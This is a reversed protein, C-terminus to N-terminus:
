AIPRWRPGSTWAAGLAARDRPARRAIAHRRQAGLVVAGGTPGQRGTGPRPHGTEARADARRAALGGRPAAPAGRRHEHRRGFGRPDRRGASRDARRRGWPGVPARGAPRAGPRRAPRTPGTAAGSRRPATAVLGDPRAGGVPRGAVLPDACRADARGPPGAAPRAHLGLRGVRRDPGTPRGPRGRPM